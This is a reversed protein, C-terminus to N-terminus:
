RIGTAAQVRALTACMNDYDSPNLWESRRTAWDKIRVTAYSGTLMGPLTCWLWDIQPELMEMEGTIHDIVFRLTVSLELRTNIASMNSVANGMSYIVPVGKIHTTDQVVHPHAGVVACCGQDVLWRAWQDQTASHHLEYENGWHPLALIFDAGAARASDICAKVDDKRMRLVDPGPGEPGMNTGYTFNVLAIKMGHRHLLLPKKGVGTYRIGLSDAQRDYVMLTRKFGPMGKDLVHNNALLFVDAGCRAVYEPYWDPTSFAPYGTYPPGAMPFEMNAICFSAKQMYPVINELFPECDYELQRSHMM